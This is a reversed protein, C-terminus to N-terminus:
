EPDEIATLPVVQGATITPVFRFGPDFSMGGDFSFPARNFQPFSLRAGVGVAYYMHLNSFHSFVSGMDYFIVGGLHVAQWMIPLTRLEFNALARHAGYDAIEQSYYGRLGSDSGLTVYTNLTDHRRLELYARMVFRFIWFVPSAGRLQFLGKQDIWVGHTLRGSGSVKLDILCGRPTFIWGATGALVLANAMSGFARLPLRSGLTLSPGTRVNESLGYTTLNTFTTWRTAFLDYSITPGSDRRPVWLIERAFDERLSDPLMTEDLVTAKRYRVDWGATVAQKIADGARYSATVYADDARGRFVQQAYPADNKEPDPFLLIEGKKTYRYVRNDHLYNASWAFRQSLRYYPQGVSVSAVEGEFTDWQRNFVLGARQKFAVSSGLVRRAYYSEGIIYSKTLITIDASATKNHGFANLETLRLLLTNIVKGTISFDSEIRLSWLDRTNVLIGVEDTRETKVPTIRVMAFIGMGRLNRMTEEILAETYAEGQKFLLERQVVHERTRGHFWNWWLPWVEDPVFVDDRVIRIFAIRKGAPAVDPTLKEQALVRDVRRQEYTVPSAIDVKDLKSDADSVAEPAPPTPTSSLAPEARGVPVLSLAFVFFLFLFM